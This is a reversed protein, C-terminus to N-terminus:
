SETIEGYVRMIENFAATTDVFKQCQRISYLLEFLESYREENAKRRNNCDRLALVEEQLDKNKATLEEVKGKSSLASVAELETNKKRLATVEEILEEVRAKLNGVQEQLEAKENMVRKLEEEEFKGM